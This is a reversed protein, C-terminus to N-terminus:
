HGLIAEMGHHFFLYVTINALFLATALKLITGAKHKKPGCPGHVCGTDHCDVKVALYHVGWGALVVLGSIAIIPLEWKHMIEHLADFGPPMAAILGVGAALSIISFLTPLVCCFVHSAESAIIAVALSKQVRDFNM